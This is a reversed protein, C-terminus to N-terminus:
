NEKLAFSSLFKEVNDNSVASKPSEVAMIYVNREIIYVRMMCTYDTSDFKYQRGPYGSISIARQSVLTYNKKAYEASKILGTPLIKFYQAAFEPQETIVPPLNLLVGVTYEMDDAKVHYQRLGPANPAKVADNSMEEPSGPMMLSFGAGAPAIEQWSASALSAGTSPLSMNDLGGSRRARRPQQALAVCSMVSLCVFFAVTSFAKKNVQQLEKLPNKFIKQPSISLPKYLTGFDGPFLSWM